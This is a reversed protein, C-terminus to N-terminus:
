IEGDLGPLKLIKILNWFKANEMRGTVRRKQRSMPNNAGGGWQSGWGVEEGRRDPLKTREDPM